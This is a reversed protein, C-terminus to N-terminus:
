NQDDGFAVCTVAIDMTDSMERIENTLSTLSTERDSAGVPIAAFISTVIKSDFDEAIEDLKKQKSHALKPGNAFGLRNRTAIFEIFPILRRFQNKPPPEQRVRLEKQRQYAKGIKEVAEM